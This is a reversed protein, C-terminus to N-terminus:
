SMHMLFDRFEDFQKKWHLELDIKLEAVEKKLMEKRDYFQHMADQLDEAYPRTYICGKYFHKKIVSTKSLIMPKKISVAEYAGCVLCNERLTLVIIADVSSILGWYEKEPLFGLIKINSPVMDLDVKGIYNGTFYISFDEPLNKAAEILEMYPEDKSYTCIYAFTVESKSINYHRNEPVDPIMDPLVFATGNNNAVIKALEHNTVITCDAFKQMLQSLRMLLKSKGEYPFLGANHADIVCKYRFLPKLLLVFFSLLISPNQAIVIDPKEKLLINTTKYLSKLYRRYRKDEYVIEYLPWKLSSSIGKNRRQIEWSIWIGNKKMIQRDSELRSRVLCLTSGSKRWHVGKSILEM